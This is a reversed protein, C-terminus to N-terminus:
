IEEIEIANPYWSFFQIRWGYFTIRYTKGVELKAWRDSADFRWLLLEDVICYVNGDTDSFLYIQKDSGSAKVWKEKITVTRVTASQYFMVLYMISGGVALAILLFFVVGALIDDDM